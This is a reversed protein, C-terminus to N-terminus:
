ADSLELASDTARNRLFEYGHQSTLFGICIFSFATSPILRATTSKPQINAPMSSADKFPDGCRRCYSALKLRRPPKYLAVILGGVHGVKGGGNVTRSDCPPSFSELM